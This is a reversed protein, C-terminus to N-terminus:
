DFSNKLFPYMKGIFAKDGESLELPAAYSSGDKTLQAPIAIMMISKSDFPSYKTSATPTLIKEDTTERSWSNPPGGYYAYVKEADWPIKADPSLHEHMLGLAHGFQHLVTRRLAPGQQQTIDLNMTPEGPRERAMIGRTSDSGAGAKFSVRIDSPEDDVFEFHINAHQEWEKAIGSVQSHLDTSGGIFRVRLTQGIPWMVDRGASYGLRDLYAQEENEDVDATFCVDLSEQNSAFTKLVAELEALAPDSTM